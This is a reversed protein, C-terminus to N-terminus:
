RASLLGAVNRMAAATEARLGERMSSVAEFSEGGADNSAPVETVEEKKWKEVDRTQEHAYAWERSEEALSRKGARYITAMFNKLLNPGINLRIIGGSDLNTERIERIQKKKRKTQRKRSGYESLSRFSYM